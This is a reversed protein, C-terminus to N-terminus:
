LYIFYRQCGWFSQSRTFKPRSTVLLWLIQLPGVNGLTTFTLLSIGEKRSCLFWRLSNCCDTILADLLSVTVYSLLGVTFITTQPNNWLIQQLKAPLVEAWYIVGFIVVISALGMSVSAPWNRTFKQAKLQIRLHDKSPRRTNFTIHTAALTAVRAQDNQIQPVTVLDPSDTSAFLESTTGAQVLEEGTVLLDTQTATHRTAANEKGTRSKDKGIIDTQTGQDRSEAKESAGSTGMDELGVSLQLRQDTAATEIFDILSTEEVM